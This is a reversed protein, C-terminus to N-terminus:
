SQTTATVTREDRLALGTALAHAWDDRGDRGADSAAADWDYEIARFNVHWRSGHREVLAYRAHPSGTEIVHPIGEDDAFAQLSVSGPDVVFPGDPLELMRPMHSHACLVLTQRVDGLRERAEDSTASRAGAADVRELLYQVDSSPTGHCLLVDGISVTTPPAGLWACHARALRRAAARDSEGLSALEGLVQRDHNGRVSVYSSGMLREATGAADLPGSVYDGLNVTIDPSYRALDAIVADLARLNGHVDAIVAIRM